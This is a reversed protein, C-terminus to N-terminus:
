CIESSISFLLLVCADRGTCRASSEVSSSMHMESPSCNIAYLNLLPALSTFTIVILRAQLGLNHVKAVIESCTSACTHQNANDYQQSIFDTSSSLLVLDFPSFRSFVVQSGLCHYLDNPDV